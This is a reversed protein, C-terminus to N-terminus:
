DMCLIGYKAYSVMSGKYDFCLGDIYWKGLVELAKLQEVSPKRYCIPTTYVTSGCLIWGLEKLVYDDPSKPYVILPYLDSAIRYHMSIIEDSLDGDYKRLIGMRDIFFQKEVREKNYKLNYKDKM